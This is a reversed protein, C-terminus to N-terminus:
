AIRVSEPFRSRVRFTLVGATAVNGRQVTFWSSGNDLSPTTIIYRGDGVSNINYNHFHGVLLIDADHTPQRGLSQGAWWQELGTQRTARHGHVFGLRTGENTTFSVSELHEDPAIFTVTNTLQAAAATILENLQQQVELGWDDHATSAPGQFTVRNQSHNSPVSVHVVPAYEQFRM